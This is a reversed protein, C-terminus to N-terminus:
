GGSGDPQPVASDADSTEIRSGFYGQNWLLRFIGLVLLAAGVCLWAWFPWPFEGSKIGISGALLLPAVVVLVVRGATTDM